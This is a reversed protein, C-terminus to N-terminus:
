ISQCEFNSAYKNLRVERLAVDIQWTKCSFFSSIHKWVVSWSSNTYQSPAISVVSINRKFYISIKMPSIVFCIQRFFNFELHIQVKAHFCILCKCSFNFLVNLLFNYANPMFFDLIGLGFHLQLKHLSLSKVCLVDM